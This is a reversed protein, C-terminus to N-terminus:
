CTSLVAAALRNSCWISKDRKWVLLMVSSRTAAVSGFQLVLLPCPPMCLCMDPQDGPCTPTALQPMWRLRWQHVLQLRQCREFARSRSHLEAIPLPAEM